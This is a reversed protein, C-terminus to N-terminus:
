SLTEPCDLKGYAFRLLGRSLQASMQVPQLHNQMVVNLCVFHPSHKLLYKTCFINLFENQFNFNYLIHEASKSM